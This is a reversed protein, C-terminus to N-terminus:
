WERRTRDGAPIGNKGHFLIWWLRFAWPSWFQGFILPRVRLNLEPDRPFAFRSIHALSGAFFARQRFPHELLAIRRRVKSWFILGVFFM